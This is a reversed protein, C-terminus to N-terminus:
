GTVCGVAFGFNVQGNYGATHRAIRPVEDLAVCTVRPCRSYSFTDRTNTATNVSYPTLAQVFFGRNWLNAAVAEVVVTIPTEVVAAGSQFDTFLGIVINPNAAPEVGNKIYARLDIGFAGTFTYEGRSAFGNNRKHAASGVSFKLVTEVVTDTYVIVPIPPANTCYTSPNQVAIVGVARNIWSSGFRDAIRYVL